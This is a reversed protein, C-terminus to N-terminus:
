PSCVTAHSLDDATKKNFLVEITAFAFKLSTGPGQSTIIKGSVVVPDKVQTQDPLKSHLSPYCTAKHGELLGNAALILAPAACIAAIWKNEAKQKKLLDIVAKCKGVNETGPLGGPLMVMDWPKALVDELKADAIFKIGHSGQFELTAADAADVPVKAITVEAGARRLMDAPACLEVEESGQAILILVKPM